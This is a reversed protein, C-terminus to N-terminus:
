EGKKLKRKDYDVVEKTGDKKTFEIKPKFYGDGAWGGGKLSFNTRSMIKYRDGGCTECKLPLDRDAMPRIEEVVDKCTDCKYEYIFAM